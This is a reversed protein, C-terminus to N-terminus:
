LLRVNILFNRIENKGLATIDRSTYRGTRARAAGDFSYDSRQVVEPIEPLIIFMDNTELARKSEEETMLEEYPKEGPKVGINQIRIDAPKYGYRPAMDEVVVDILDAIRFVPMKLVFVEGGRMLSLARFILGIAESESMMFRTMNHDTITVPGGARIQERFLPIISGSSGLVNGFRISSFRVDHSGKYYNAATMLKEGLLKTTGMVNSPNTAKDSSTFIVKSVNEDICVDILNQLGVVNTKIAEFPNYECSAVHKLAAAHFVIDVGRVASYLRNKDRIDGILYRLKKNGRFEQELMFSRSEDNDLIRIVEPEYELLARVIASGVTGSGGTVLIRKGRFGDGTALM